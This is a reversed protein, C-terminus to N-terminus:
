LATSTDFCTSSYHQRLAQDVAQLIRIAHDLRKVAFWYDVVTFRGGKGLHRQLQRKGKRQSASLHTLNGFCPCEEDGRVFLRDVLTCSHRRGHGFVGQRYQFLLHQESLAATLSIDAYRLGKVQRTSFPVIATLHTNKSQQEVVEGDQDRLYKDLSPRACDALPRGARWGQYPKSNRLAHGFPTSPKRGLLRCLPDDPGAHDLQWQFATHLHLYRDPLLTLGLLNATMRYGARGGAIWCILDRWGKTVRAWKKKAEPDSQLWAYILPGGYEFMPALYQRYVRLRHAIGWSDSALTLFAAHGKAADIRAMLYAEWDIGVATVPFGLYRYTDVYPIADPGLRLPPVGPRTTLYGCKAVNLEMGNDQAWRFVLDVWPQLDQGPRALLTGDDAYFLARPITPDAHHNLRCLLDDVFLNFLCPSIPSGQLVGRTRPFPPSTQGNAVIRSSLGLCNLSALLSQIALPCRRRRLMQLLLAHPVVDFAARFDLFVVADVLKERLLLHMAAAHTLTSYTRRFGAQAPHVAAWGHDDFTSLLIAEFVKRFICILTIPRVNAVTKPKKSDKIVFCIDAVNWATPTTGTEWCTTYLRTLRDLFTTHVLAKVLRIHIGDAACAKAGLQRRIEMQVAGLTFPNPPDLECASDPLTRMPFRSEATFRQQLVDVAEQIADGGATTPLLPKNDRDSAMAQRMLRITAMASPDAAVTTLPTLTRPGAAILPVRGLVRAAVDQCDHILTDHLHNVDLSSSSLTPLCRWADRLRRKTTPNSLRHTWFRFCTPSAQTIGTTIPLQLHLTYLHDTDLGLSRNDLLHLAPTGGGRCWVHDTTSETQLRLTRIPCADVQPPLRILGTEQQWQVIAEARAKPTAQQRQPSFRVNFDGFVVDSAALGTLVMDVQEPSLSPPLYVGSIQWGDIRLTIATEDVGVVTEIRSATAASALVCMGGKPRSGTQEGPKSTAAVTTKWRGYGPWGVYWTEAIWVLDFLDQEVWQRLQQWNEENLGRSNVYGVRLRPLVMPPTSHSSRRPRWPGTNRQRLDAQVLRRRQAMEQRKRRTAQRSRVIPRAM